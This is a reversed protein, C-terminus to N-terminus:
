KGPSVAVQSPGVRLDCHHSNPDVRTKSINFVSRKGYGPCCMLRSNGLRISTFSGGPLYAYDFEVGCDRCRLHSVQIIKQM